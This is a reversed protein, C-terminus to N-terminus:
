GGILSFWLAMSGLENLYAYAMYMINKYLHTVRKKTQYVTQYKVESTNLVLQLNVFASALNQLMKWKLAQWQFIKLNQSWYIQKKKPNKHSTYVQWGPAM